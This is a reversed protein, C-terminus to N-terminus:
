RGLRQASTDFVFSTATSLRMFAAEPPAEAAPASPDIAIEIAIRGDRTDCAVCARARSSPNRSCRSAAPTAACWCASGDPTRPLSCSPARPSSCSGSAAGRRQPRRAHLGAAAHRRAAARGRGGRRRRGELGLARVLRPGAVWGVANWQAALITARRPERRLARRARARRLERASAVQLQFERAVAALTATSLHGLRFEPELAGRYDTM